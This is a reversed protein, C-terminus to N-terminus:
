QCLARPKAWMFKWHHNRQIIVAHTKWLSDMFIEYNHDFFSMSKDQSIKM